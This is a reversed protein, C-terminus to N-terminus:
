KKWKTSEAAARVQARANKDAAAFLGTFFYFRGRQPFVVVEKIMEDRGVRGTFVL